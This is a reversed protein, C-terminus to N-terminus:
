GFAEELTAQREADSHRVYRGVYQLGTHGLAAATETDSGSKARHAAGFTHRLRHPHLHIPLGDNAQASALRAIRELARNIQQRQLFGEPNRGDRMTSVFLPVASGAPDDLPPEQAKSVADSGRAHESRQRTTL